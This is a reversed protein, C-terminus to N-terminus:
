RWGKCSRRPRLIQYSPSRRNLRSCHPKLSGPRAGRIGKPQSTGSAVAGVPHVLVIALAALPVEGLQCPRERSSPARTVKLATAKTTMSNVVSLQIHKNIGQVDRSAKSRRETNRPSVDGQARGHCWSRLILSGNRAPLNRLLTGAHPHVPSRWM